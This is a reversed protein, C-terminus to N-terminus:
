GDKNIREKKRLFKEGINIGAYGALLVYIQWDTIKLFFLIVGIILSQFKRGTFNWIVKYFCLKWFGCSELEKQLANQFM